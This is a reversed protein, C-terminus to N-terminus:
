DSGNSDGRSRSSSGRRFWSRSRRRPSTASVGCFDGRSSSPSGTSSSSPGSRTGVLTAPADRNVRSDWSMSAFYVTVLAAVILAGERLWTTHAAILEMEGTPAVTAVLFIAGLSFIAVNQPFKVETELSDEVEKFLRNAAAAGFGFPVVELMGLRVVTIPDNGWEIIGLIFLLIFTAVFGQAITETFEVAIASGSLSTQQEHEKKFGIHRAILLVVLLGLVMYILLHDLPLTWGLWWAEMTYYFTGAIVLFGAVFGRGWDRAEQM